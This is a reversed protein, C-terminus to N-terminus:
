GIFIQKLTDEQTLCWNKFEQVTESFDEDIKETGDRNQEVEFTDPNVKYQTEFVKKKDKEKVKYGVKDITKAYIEYGYKQLKSLETESPKYAFIITPNVTAEAFVNGPLDIIAVIRMNKCLWKRAEIHEDVSAISNSLIIGLRGNKNLIRVANELFIVGKDISKQNYNNWTEYCKAIELEKQTKPEWSRGKGFPPNTIVIDFKKLEKTDPRTDWKGNKNMIPELEILNGDKDFKNLISGFGDTVAEIKAQGDGNLLMNLTALKVMDESIDVGYMNEDKLTADSKVYAMSLFDAIGITPDIIFEKSKPNIIDVIFEIIPLPTIFQSNETKAFANAFKYFVLQYLNNKKSESFSYNQFKDVVETIVKVHNENKISFSIDNLIRRYSEKARISLIEIRKLFNQLAEDSIKKYNKELPNIFFEMNDNNKEDFIKIAILQILIDYGKQNLLGCHEMIVIIDQMADSIKNSHTDKIIQLDSLKRNSYDNVATNESNYKIMEDFSLLEEYADLRSFDLKYKKDKTEINYADNLRKFTKGTQEFLYLRGEDYLIGFVQNKTSENMYAKLQSNFISEISKTSDKKFEIACLIHDKLWALCNYDKKQWFKEYYDFWNKDDFIVADIKLPKSDKNGKPLHIEAGIYDKSCLGSNIFCNLFEWKYYQENYSGNKNYLNTEKKNHSLHVPLFCDVEKINKFKIYYQEKLQEFHSNATKISAM